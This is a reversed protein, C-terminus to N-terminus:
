NQCYHLALGRVQPNESCFPPYGILMEYMIVGLSWWDCASTYGTQLFVEPAIYDPTGVQFPSHYLTQHYQYNSNTKLKLVVHYLGRISVTSYALQRRNRKWSEAKRKSNNLGEESRRPINSFDSPKMQSLDRYFDTRHSKKLGTCLGFDSLKIHGRADLLLNDPKIDRFYSINM